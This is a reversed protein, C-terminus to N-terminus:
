FQSFSSSNTWIVVSILSVITFRLKQIRIDHIQMCVCFFNSKPIHLTCLCFLLSFLYLVMLFIIFLFYTNIDKLAFLLFNCNKSNLPFSDWGGKTKPFNRYIYWSLYVMIYIIIQLPVTKWILLISPMEM